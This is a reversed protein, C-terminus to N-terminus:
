TPISKEPNMDTSTPLAAGNSGKAGAYAEADFPNDPSISELRVIALKGANVGISLSTPRYRFTTVNVGNHIHCQKHNRLTVQRTQGDCTAVLTASGTEPDVSQLHVTVHPGIQLGEGSSRKLILM